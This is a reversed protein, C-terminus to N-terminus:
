FIYSKLVTLILKATNRKGLENRIQWLFKITEPRIKINNNINLLTTKDSHFRKDGTVIKSNGANNNHRRYAILPTFIVLSGGILNAFNFLFKDPCIRWKETNRYDKVFEISSKRFMASSM